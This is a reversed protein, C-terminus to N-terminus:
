GLSGVTVKDTADCELTMVEGDVELWLDIFEIDPSSRVKKM